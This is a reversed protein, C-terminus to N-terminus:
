RFPVARARAGFLNLQNSSKRSFNFESSKTLSILTVKWSFVSIAVKVNNRMELFFFFEVPRALYLNIIYGLGLWSLQRWSGDIACSMWICLFGSLFIREYASVVVFM